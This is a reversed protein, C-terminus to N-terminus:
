SGYDAAFLIDVLCSVSVVRANTFQDVGTGDSPTRKYQVATAVRRGM